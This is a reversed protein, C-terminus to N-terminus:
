LRCRVAEDKIFRIGEGLTSVRKIYPHDETKNWPKDLLVALCSPGCARLVKYLNDPRDDIMGHLGIAHAVLGKEKTHVVTSCPILLKRRVWIRSANTLGHPRASIFYIDAGELHLENLERWDEDGILRPLNGMFEQGYESGDKLHNWFSREAKAWGYREEFNWMTPEAEHNFARPKGSRRILEEVYPGMFDAVVEDLDIGIRLPTIPLTPKFNLHGM